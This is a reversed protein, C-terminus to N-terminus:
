MVYYHTFHDWELKRCLAILETVTEWIPIWTALESRLTARIGHSDQFKGSGIRKDWRGLAPIVSVAVVNLRTGNVRALGFLKLLHRLNIILRDVPLKKNSPPVDLRYSTDKGMFVDLCQLCVCISWGGKNKRYPSETIKLFRGDSWSFAACVQNPCHCFCFDWKQREQTEFHSDSLLHPFLEYESPSRALECLATMRGHLISTEGGSLHLKQFM